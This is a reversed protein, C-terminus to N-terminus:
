VIFRRIKNSKGYETDDEERLIAWGTNGIVTSLDVTGSTPINFAEYFSRIARLRSNRKKEDDNPTPLMMVHNIMKVNPHEIPDFLVSLFKGGTNTSTKVEASVIKLEVETGDPLTTLEPVQSLDGLDLITDGVVDNEKVIIDEM